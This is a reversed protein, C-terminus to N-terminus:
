HCRDGGVEGRLGDHDKRMTGIGNGNGNAHGFGGGAENGFGNELNGLVRRQGRGDSGYNEGFTTNTGRKTSSKQPQAQASYQKRNSTPIFAQPAAVSPTSPINQNRIHQM